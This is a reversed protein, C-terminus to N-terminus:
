EDITWPKCGADLWWKVIDKNKREHTNANLQRKNKLKDCLLCVDDSALISRYHRKWDFYARYDLESNALAQLFNALSRISSFNLADIYSHPPLLKAYNASGFTVPLVDYQMTRFLKETVYDKCLSNEFSLYFFYDREISRECERSQTRPCTNAGCDGLIDVPLYKRLEDVLQERRSTTHCNSVLWAIMKTKNKYTDAEATRAHDDNITDNRKAFYGYPAYVDSDERYTLTWDFNENMLWPMYTQLIPVNEPSEKNYLVWTQNALKAPIDFFDIDRWHFVLADAHNYYCRSSSVVCDASCRYFAYNDDPYFARGFFPTWTLIVIPRHGDAQQFLPPGRCVNIKNLLTGYKYICLVCFLAILLCITSKNKRTSVM